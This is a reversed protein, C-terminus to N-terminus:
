VGSGIANATGVAIEVVAIEEVAVRRVPRHEEGGRQADIRMEVDDVGREAHEDVAHLMIEAGDAPEVALAHIQADPRDLHLHDLRQLPQTHAERWIVAADGGSRIKLAAMRRDLLRAERAALTRAHEHVVRPQRLVAAPTPSAYRVVFRSIAM